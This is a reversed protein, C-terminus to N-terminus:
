FIGVAALEHRVRSLYTPDPYGFGATGGHTNTKHHIGNWVVCNDIGTTVSKDVTFVHRMDFARRLLQLVQKGEENAPLYATRYTGYYPMGPHPHNSQQTGNPFSYTITITGAGEYGPLHYSHNVTHSMEGDPQNGKRVLVITTCFPCKGDFSFHRDFCKSCFTNECCKMSKLDVGEDACIECDGKARCDVAIQCTSSLPSILGIAITSM